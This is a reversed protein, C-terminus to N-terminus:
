TLWQGCLHYVTRTMGYNHLLLRQRILNQVRTIKASCLDTVKPERTIKDTTLMAYTVHMPALHGDSPCCWFYTLMNTTRLLTYAMQSVLDKDVRKIYRYKAPM